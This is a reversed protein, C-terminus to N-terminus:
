KLEIQPEKNHVDREVNLLTARNLHGNPCEDHSKAKFTLKSEPFLSRINFMSQFELHQENIRVEIKVQISSM